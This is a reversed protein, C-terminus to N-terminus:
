LGPAGHCTSSTVSGNHDDRDVTYIRVANHTIHRPYYPSRGRERERERGRHTRTDMGREHRANVRLEGALWEDNCFEVSVQGNKKKKENRKSGKEERM